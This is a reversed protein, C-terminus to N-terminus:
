RGTKPTPRCVRCSISICHRQYILLTRCDFKSAFSLLSSLPHFIVTGSGGVHLWDSANLNWIYLAIRVQDVFEMAEERKISRITSIKQSNFLVGYFKDANVLMEPRFTTTIFQASESLEHIM